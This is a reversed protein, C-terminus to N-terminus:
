MDDLTLCLTEIRYNSLVKNQLLKVKAAFEEPKFNKRQKKVEAVVATKGDLRIGVIDIECAEKGKKAQWWSGINLYAKSEAMKQRFYMELVLGSYTPYDERIIEELAAYNELEILSRYKVFYRFWFRLFLDSIEFRVTQTGDKAFIPRRKTILVM